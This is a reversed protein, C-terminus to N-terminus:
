NAWFFNHFFITSFFEQFFIALNPGFIQSFKGFNASFKALFFGERSDRGTALCDHRREDRRTEKSSNSAQSIGKTSYTKWPNWLSLGYPVKLYSSFLSDCTWPSILAGFFDLYNNHHYRLGGIPILFFCIMFFDYCKELFFFIFIFIFVYCPCRTWNVLQSPTPWGASDAVDLPWWWRVFSKSTWSAFPM